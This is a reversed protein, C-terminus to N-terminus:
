SRSLQTAAWREVGRSVIDTQAQNDGVQHGYDIVNGETATIWGQRVWTEYPVNNTRTREIVTAEPCWIRWLARIHDEFPFLLCFAALDLTSALDLGGYCERGALEDERLLGASADWAGAPLWRAVM